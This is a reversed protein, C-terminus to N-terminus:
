YSAQRESQDCHHEGRGSIMLSRQSPARRQRYRQPSNTKNRRTGPTVHSFASSMTAEISHSHPTGQRLTLPVSAWVHFESHGKGPVRNYTHSPERRRKRWETFCFLFQRQIHTLPLSTVELIFCLVKTNWITTIIQCLIVLPFHKINIPYCATTWMGPPSSPPPTPLLYAVTLISIFAKICNPPKRKIFTGPRSYLLITVNLSLHSASLFNALLCPAPPPPTSLKSGTGM